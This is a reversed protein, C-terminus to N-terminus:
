KCGSSLISANPTNERVPLLRQSSESEHFLHQSPLSSNQDDGHKLEISESRCLLGAQRHEQYKSIRTM